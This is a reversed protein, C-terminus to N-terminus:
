RGYGRGPQQQAPEASRDKDNEQGLDDPDSEQTEEDSEEGDPAVPSCFAPLFDPIPMGLHLRTERARGRLTIERAEPEIIDFLHGCGCETLIARIESDEAVDSQTFYPLTDM